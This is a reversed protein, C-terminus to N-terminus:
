GNFLKMSTNMRGGQHSTAEELDGDLQEAMQELLPELQQYYPHIADRSFRPIFNGRRDPEDTMMQWVSDPIHNSETEDNVEPQAQLAWWVLLWFKSEADYRLKHIFPELSKDDAMTYPEPKNPPFLTLRNGVAKEYIDHGDSLHPMAPLTYKGRLQKASRVVRAM